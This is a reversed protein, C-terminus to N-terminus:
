DIHKIYWWNNVYHSKVLLNAIIILLYYSTIFINFLLYKFEQVRDKSQGNSFFNWYSNKQFSCNFSGINLETYKYNTRWKLFVKNFHKLIVTGGSEKRQDM